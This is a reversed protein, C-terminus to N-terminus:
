GARRGIPGARGFRAAIISSVSDVLGPTGTNGQAWIGGAFAPGIYGSQGPYGTTTGSVGPGGQGGDSGIVQNAAVTSNYLSFRVWSDIGGGKANGGAGGAGGNFGPTVTPDRGDISAEGGAGGFGGWAM